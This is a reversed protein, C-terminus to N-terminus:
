KTEVILYLADYAKKLAEVSPVLAAMAAEATGADPETVPLKAVAAFAVARKRNYDAIAADAKKRRDPALKAVGLKMTTAKM